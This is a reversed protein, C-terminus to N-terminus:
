FIFSHNYLTRTNGVQTIYVQVIKFTLM